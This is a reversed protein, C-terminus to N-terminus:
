LARSRYLWSRSLATARWCHERRSIKYVSCINAKILM